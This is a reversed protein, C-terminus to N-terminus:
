PTEVADVIAVVQSRDTFPTRPLNLATAAM